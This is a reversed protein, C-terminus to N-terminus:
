IIHNLREFWVLKEERVTTSMADGIGSPGDAALEELLLNALLAIKHVAHKEGHHWALWCGLLKYMTQLAEAHVPRPANRAFRRLVPLDDAAEFTMYLWWIDNEPMNLYYHLQKPYILLAQAGEEADLDFLQGDVSVTGSGRCAVILVFRHHSHPMSQPYSNLRRRLFLLLNAVGNLEPLQVGHFYSAPEPLQPYEVVPDSM